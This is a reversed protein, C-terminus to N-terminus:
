HNVNLCCCCFFRISPIVTKLTIIIKICTLLKFFSLIKRIVKNVTNILFNDGTINYLLNKQRAKWFNQYFILQYYKFILIIFHYIFNPYKKNWKKLNKFIVFLESISNKINEHIFLANSTWIVLYSHKEIIINEMDGIYPSLFIM